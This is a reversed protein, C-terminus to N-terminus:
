NIKTNIREDSENSLRETIAILPNIDCNTCPANKNEKEEAANRMEKTYSYNFNM